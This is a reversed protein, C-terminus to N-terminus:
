STPKIPRPEFQPVEIQLFARRCRYRRVKHARSVLLLLQTNFDFLGVPHRQYASRVNNTIKTRRPALRRWPRPRALRAAVVTENKLTIPGAPGCVGACRPQFALWFRDGALEAAFTRAHHQTRLVCTSLFNRRRSSSRLRDLMRANREM